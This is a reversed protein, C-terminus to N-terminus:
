GSELSSKASEWPLLDKQAPNVYPFVYLASRPLEVGPNTSLVSRQRPEEAIVWFRGYIIVEFGAM